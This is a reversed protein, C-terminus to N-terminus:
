NRNELEWILWDYPFPHPNKKTATAEKSESLDVNGVVGPMTGKSTYQWYDWETDPETNSYRAIWRKASPDIAAMDLMTKAWSDSCYIGYEGYGSLRLKEFFANALITRTAKALKDARGTHNPSYESDLFIGFQMNKRDLSMLYRICFVAEAIAEAKTTAQTVYYVGWPEGSKILEKVRDEFKDDLVMKGQGYGTYGLRLIVGDCSDAVTRMNTVENYKSIDVIEKM